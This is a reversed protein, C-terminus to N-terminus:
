AITPAPPPAVHSQTAVFDFLTVHSRRLKHRTAPPPRATAGNGHQGFSRPQPPCDTAFGFLSGTSSSSPSQDAAVHSEPEGNRPENKQQEQAPADGLDFTFELLRQRLPAGKEMIAQPSERVPQESDPSAQPQEADDPSRM